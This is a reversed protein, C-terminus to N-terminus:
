PIQSPLEVPRLLLNFPQFLKQKRCRRLLLRRDPELELIRPSFPQLELLHDM